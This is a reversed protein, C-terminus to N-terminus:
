KFQIKFPTLHPPFITVPTKLRFCCRPDIKSPHIFIDRTGSSLHLSWSCLFLEPASLALHAASVILTIRFCRPSPPRNYRVTNDRYRDTGVSFKLWSLWCITCYDFSICRSYLNFTREFHSVVPQPFPFGEAPRHIFSLRTSPVFKIYRTEGTVYM